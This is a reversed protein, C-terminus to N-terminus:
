HEKDNSSINYKHHILDSRAVVSPNLQIFLVSFSIISGIFSLVLGNNLNFMYASFAVSDKDKLSDILHFLYNSIESKTSLHRALYKRVTSMQRSKWDAFCAIGVVLLVSHLMFIGEYLIFDGPKDFKAYLINGPIMVFFFSYCFLPILFLQNLKNILDNTFQLDSSLRMLSRGDVSTWLYKLMLKNNTEMIGQQIVIHLTLIPAIFDINAIVIYPVLLKLGDQQELDTSAYIIHFTVIYIAMAITHILVYLRIKSKEEDSLRELCDELLRQIDKRKLCTLAIMTPRGVQYIIESVIYLLPFNQDIVKWVRYICFIPMIAMRLYNFWKFFCGRDLYIAGGTFVTYLDLPSIVDRAHMTLQVTRVRM